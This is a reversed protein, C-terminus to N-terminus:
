LFNFWRSIGFYFSGVMAPVNGNSSFSQTMRTFGATLYVKRFLYQMYGNLQRSRNNSDTSDGQTNTFAESYSGSITLGRIPNIGIGASYAHGGYLIVSSPAVVPLLVTVPQLGSATLVSNGNSRSYSGSVGIWRISLVTSYTQSFTGSGSDNSLASKAGSASASWHSKRAFQRGLTGAYGYGTSTYGILATQMNEGYRVMGSASWKRINRSYNITGNVGTLAGQTSNSISTRNAGVTVNLFGGLFVNSYTASGSYTNSQLSEGDYVQARRDDTGSLTVHLAPISYNVYGLLDLSHTGELPAGGVAGGAAVITDDLSAALNDLYQLNAGFNLNNIPNFTIGSNLTDLSSHYDGADSDSNVDSRSAGASFSGHFPLAHSLGFSITSTDSDMTNAQSGLIEPVQSDTVSDRYGGTLTFGAVRYNSQVIISRFTSSLDGNSGYLSYNSNGDLFSVTVNPLHPVNESWSINLVQSDGRSTFDAVGPVNYNGQANYNKSFSIAGPFNSGSFIGASANVGSADTLSQYDSNERSQNLFPQVNFSLFNPSYFFGNLTGTGGFTIGHDSATQNGYDGTYGASINGNGALNFKGLQVQGFAMGATALLVMAAWPAGRTGVGANPPVQHKM